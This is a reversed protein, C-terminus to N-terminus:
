LRMSILSNSPSLWSESSEPRGSGERPPCPRLHRWVPRADATGEPQEEEGMQTCVSLQEHWRGGSPAGVVLGQASHCCAMATPLPLAPQPLLLWEATTANHAPPWGSVVHGPPWPHYECPEKRNCPSHWISLSPFAPLDQHSSLRFCPRPRPQTGWAAAEWPTGVNETSIWRRGQAEHPSGCGTSLGPLGACRARLCCPCPHHGQPLRVQLRGLTPSVHRAVCLKDKGRGFCGSGGLVKAWSQGPAARAVGHAEGM